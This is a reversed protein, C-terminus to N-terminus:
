KPEKPNVWEYREIGDDTSDIRRVDPRELPPTLLSDSYYSITEDQWTQYADISLKGSYLLDLKQKWNELFLCFDADFKAGGKGNVAISAKWERDEPPKKVDIEMSVDYTEQMQFLMNVIDALTSAPYKNRWSNRCDIGVAKKGEQGPPALFKRFDVDLADAIERLIAMTFETKGAEYNQITRESKDIMKALQKQNVKKSKRIRKLNAAIDATSLPPSDM